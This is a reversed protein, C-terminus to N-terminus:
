KVEENDSHLIKQLANVELRLAIDNLLDVARFAEDIEAQQSEFPQRVDVSSLKKRLVASSSAQEISLGLGKYDGVNEELFTALLHINKYGGRFSLDVYGKETKHVITVDKHVTRYTPWTSRAGKPGKSNVSSLHAYNAEQFDIYKNWFDTVSSVEVVKYETKQHNIAQEIQSAKFLSRADDKAKFYSLLEEYKVKFSYNAAEENNMLYKEPAVIFVDFSEYDRHEIGRKGREFYRKCQDPQAVADIKDEILLGYKKNNAQVIVTIDSEGLEADTKSHEVAVVKADSMGIKSLFINAFEQSAVFEELILMDIDREIIDLFRIDM